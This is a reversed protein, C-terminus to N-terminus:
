EAVDVETCLHYANPNTKHWNRGSKRWKSFQEENTIKIYVFSGLQYIKCHYTKALSSVIGNIWNQLEQTVLQSLSEWSNRCFVLFGWFTVVSVSLRKEQRWWVTHASNQPKQKRYLAFYSFICTYGFCSTLHQKMNPRSPVKWRVNKSKTRTQVM